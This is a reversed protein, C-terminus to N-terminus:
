LLIIIIRCGVAYGSIIYYRVHNIRIEDDPKAFWEIPVTTPIQINCPKTSYHSLDAPTANNNNGFVM